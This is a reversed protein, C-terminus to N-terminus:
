RGIESTREPVYSRFLTRAARILPPASISTLRDCPFCALAVGLIPVRTERTEGIRYRHGPAIQCPAPLASPISTHRLHRSTLPQGANFPLPIQISAQGLPAFRTM